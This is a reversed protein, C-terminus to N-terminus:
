RGNPRVFTYFAECGDRGMHVPAAKRPPRCAAIRPGAPHGAVAARAGRARRWSTTPRRSASRSGARDLCIGRTRHRAGLRADDGARTTGFHAVRRRRAVRWSSCGTGEAFAGARSSRASRARARPAMGGSCAVDARSFRSLTTPPALPLGPYHCAVASVAANVRSRTPSPQANGSHREMERVALLRSVARPSGRM